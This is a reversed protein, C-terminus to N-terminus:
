NVCHPRQLRVWSVHGDDVNGAILGLFAGHQCSRLVPVLFLETLLLAWDSRASAAAAAPPTSTPPPTSAPLQVTVVREVVEVASRGSEAARHQEWARHRCSTGCWKPVRGKTPVDVEAGCWSCTVVAPRVTKGRGAATVAASTPVAATSGTTTM